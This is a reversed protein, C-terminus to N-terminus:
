GDPCWGRTINRLHDLTSIISDLIYRPLKLKENLFKVKKENNVSSLNV